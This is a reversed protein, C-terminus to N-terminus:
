ALQLAGTRPGTRPRDNRGFRYDYIGLLAQCWRFFPYARNSQQDMICHCYVRIGPWWESAGAKRFPILSRCVSPPLVTSCTLIQIDSIGYGSSFKRTLLTTPHGILVVLGYDDEIDNLAVRNMVELAEFTVLTYPIDM